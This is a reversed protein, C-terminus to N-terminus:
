VRSILAVLVAVLTTIQIGITWTFQRSMKDDLHRVASRLEQLMQSQEEMRGELYGMRADM